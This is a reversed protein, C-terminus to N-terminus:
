SVKQTPPALIDITRHPIAPYCYPCRRYTSKAQSIELTDKIIEVEVTKRGLM